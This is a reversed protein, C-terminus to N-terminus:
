CVYLYEIAAMQVVICMRFHLMVLGSAIGMSCNAGVVRGFHAWVLQRAAAIAQSSARGAAASKSCKRSTPAGEQAGQTDAPVRLTGSTGGVDTLAPPVHSPLLAVVAVRMVNGDREFPIVESPFPAQMTIPNDRMFAHVDAPLRKSGLGVVVACVNACFASM